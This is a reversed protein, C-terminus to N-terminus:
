AGEEEGTDEVEAPEEEVEAAPEEVRAKKKGRKMKTADVEAQLGRRTAKKRERDRFNKVSGRVWKRMSAFEETKDGATDKNAEYLREMCEELEEKHQAMFGDATLSQYAPVLGAAQRRSEGARRGGEDDSVLAEDEGLDWGADAALKGNVFMGLERRRRPGARMERCVMNEAEEKRMKHKAEAVSPRNPNSKLKGTVEAATLFRRLLFLENLYTCACRTYHLL